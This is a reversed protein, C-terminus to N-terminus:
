LKTNRITFGSQEETEVYDIEAGDLLAASEKDVVMRIGNQELEFDNEPDSKTDLGMGSKYDDGEQKLTVRLMVDDTSVGQKLILAKVKSRAKETLVLGVM